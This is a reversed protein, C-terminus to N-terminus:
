NKKLRNEAFFDMMKKYGIPDCKECINDWDHGHYAKFLKSISNEICYVASEINVPTLFDRLFMLFSPTDNIFFLCEITCGERFYILYKGAEGGEKRFISMNRSSDGFDDTYGGENWYGLKKAHSGLEEDDGVDDVSPLESFDGNKYIYCQM